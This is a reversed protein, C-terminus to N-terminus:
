AAARQTICSDASIETQFLDLVPRSDLDRWSAARFPAAVPSLNSVIAAEFSLKTAQDDRLIPIGAFRLGLGGLQQDSIGAIEIGCRRAAHIYAPINKGLDILLVRRLRLEEAAQKMRRSTEEVKAFQEFARASIPTQRAAIGRVIGRCAGMWFGLRRRSAIAMLRYRKLWAMAYKWRWAAPFCRLALITNNRADLMAVRDAFRSQSTKLHMVRLDDFRRVEWGGNLLRLSLDYEEGAMFFDEPLGGVELLATRRFGTGCGICVEPYASCEQSKDPLMVTFVAAGLQEDAAFHEIMRAISGRQPFSDDDLFVVFEGRAARIAVNKACPGRNKSQELVVVGPCGRKIAGATGDRSANDVVLIEFESEELGCNCIRDLTDLVVERRNYTALVFSVRPRNSTAHSINM